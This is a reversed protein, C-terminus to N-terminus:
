NEWPSVGAFSATLGAFSPAESGLQVFYCEVLYFKLSTSSMPITASRLAAQIVKVMAIIINVTSGVHVSTVNQKVEAYCSFCWLSQLRFHLDISCGAAASATSM